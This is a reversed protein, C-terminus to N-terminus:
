HIVMLSIHQGNIGYAALSHDGGVRLLIQGGCAKGKWEGKKELTASRGGHKPIFTGGCTCPYYWSTVMRVRASGDLDASTDTSVRDDLLVLGIERLKAKVKEARASRGIRPQAVISYGGRFQLVDKRGEKLGEKQVQVCEQLAEFFEESTTYSAGGEKQMARVINYDVDDVVVASKADGEAKKVHYDDLVGDLWHRFERARM